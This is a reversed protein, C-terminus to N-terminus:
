TGILGHTSLADYLARCFSAIAGVTPTTGLDAKSSTATQASWGTNRASVVQTSNIQLVAGSAALNLVNGTTFILNGAQLIRGSTNTTHINAMTDIRFGNADLRTSYNTSVIDVINIIPTGNIVITAKGTGANACNIQFANTVSVSTGSFSGSYGSNYYNMSVFASATQAMFFNSAASASLVDTNTIGLGISGNFSKAINIERLAAPTATGISLRANTNDWTFSSSGAFSGSSNYQVQTNSGGPTGGGGAPTAWSYTTGDYKLFTTSSPTGTPSVSSLTGLTPTGSIQSYAPQTWTYTTGNYLLFTNASPTGTPTVTALSGLSAWTGDGRLYTTASPTGTVAGSLATVSSIITGSTPLTVSTNASTNLTVTHTSSGISTNGSVTITKGTNAVGTGGYQGAVVSANWTGTTVVGTNATVVLGNLSTVGTLAGLNITLAPTSGATFSGSVGQNTTVSLSTVYTGAAQYQPINLVGTTSSYTAAGNTGTTTLSIAARAMADTYQTITTAIVGSTITIGTGASFAARARATTFFLNTGGEVVQDSNLAQHQWKAPSGGYVWVDNATPTGAQMDVGHIRDVNPNPYTGSLDGGASGSPPLSTPFTALTGNGMIYQSSTGSFTLSLTGSTTVPSGTVSISNGNTVALSVSTVTGSGSMTGLTGDGLVVQSSTGNWTLGITGNATLPSNSVSLATSNNISLGVSTLGTTPLDIIEVRLYKGVGDQGEITDGTQQGSVSLRLRKYLSTYPKLVDIATM